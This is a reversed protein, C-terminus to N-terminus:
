ERAARARCARLWQHLFWAPIATLLGWETTYLAAAIGGALQQGMDAGAGTSLAHFAQLLGGITGLLGLLPLAAILATAPASWSGGAVPPLGARTVLIERLLLFYTAAALVLICWM